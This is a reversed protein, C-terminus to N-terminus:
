YSTPHIWLIYCDSDDHEYFRALPLLQQLQYNCKPLRKRRWALRLGWSFSLINFGSCQRSDISIRRTTVWSFLWKRHNGVRANSWGTSILRTSLGNGLEPPCYRNAVAGIISFECGFGLQYRLYPEHCQQRHVPQSLLKRISLSWCIRSEDFANAPIVEYQSRWTSPFYLHRSNNRPRRHSSPNCPFRCTLLIHPTAPRWPSPWKYM